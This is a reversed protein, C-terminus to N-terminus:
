VKVIRFFYDTILRVQERKLTKSLQTAFAVGSKKSINKIGDQFVTVQLTFPNQWGDESSVREFNNQAVNM